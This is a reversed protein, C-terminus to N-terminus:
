ARLPSREPKGLPQPLGELEIHEAVLSDEDLIYQSAAALPLVLVKGAGFQDATIDLIFKAENLTAQVWYHGHLEGDQAQWAGGHVAAHWDSFKNVMSTLHVSAYLCSGRTTTHGVSAELIHEHVQRASSALEWLLQLSDAPARVPASSTADPM